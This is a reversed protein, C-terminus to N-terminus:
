KKIYKKYTLSDGGRSALLVEYAPIHYLEIHADLFDSFALLSGDPSIAIATPQNGGIIADLLKGTVTDILLVSGWEPGPVYYNEQSFNKGRCSVYLIKKDPSLVITNPNVDTSALKKISDNKLDLTYIRNIGMDSIYLVGKDEDAAIHRMAGGTRFIIKGKGTVLDIKQIEGKDFGAVYLYKQDKTEYIGRPTAVTPILRVLKGTAIDIQSVNSSIWNTTYLTKEDHSLLLIKTWKGKTDMTRLIRRSAVEIEYVKATEMQSVYARTGIKNFIVEVGGGSALPIEAIKSGTAPNFIGLGDKTNLLSTVWLEKGDPTFEAGKPAILSDITRVYQVIQGPLPYHVPLTAILM